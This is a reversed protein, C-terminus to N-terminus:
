APSNNQLPTWINSALDRALGQPLARCQTELECARLHGIPAEALTATVIGTQLPLVLGRPWDAGLTPTLATIALWHDM